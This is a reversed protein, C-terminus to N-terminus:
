RRRLHDRVLRAPNGIMRVNPSVSKTIVSGAHIRAGAGIVLPRNTRGEVIITGVGLFVDDEIIVHGSISVSPCITVYNGVLVDHGLSHNPMIQVHEGIQCCSGIYGFPSVISGGKADIVLDPSISLQPAFVTEFKGGADAIRGVLRRRAAPDGVAVFCPVDHFDSQWREFSIVPRCGVTEGRDGRFDDIFAIVEFLPGGEYMHTIHTAIAMSHGSAGYLILPPVEKSM